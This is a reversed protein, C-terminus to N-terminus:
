EKPWNIVAMSDVDIREMRPQIPADKLAQRIREMGAKHGETVYEKFQPLGAFQVTSAYHAVPNNSGLFGRLAILHDNLMVSRLIDLDSAKKLSRPDARWGKSDGCTPSLGWNDPDEFDGYISYFESIALMREAVELLSYIDIDKVVARKQEDPLEKLILLVDPVNKLWAILKKKVRADNASRLKKDEMSQRNILRDREKETLLEDRDQGPM